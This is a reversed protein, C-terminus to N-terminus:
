EMVHKEIVRFGAKNIVQEITDLDKTSEVTVKGLSLDINVEVQSDIAKIANSISNICSKCNM